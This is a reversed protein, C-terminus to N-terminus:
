IIFLYVFLDFGIPGMSIYKAGSLRDERQWFRFRRKTLKVISVTLYKFSINLYFISKCIIDSSELFVATSLFNQIRKEDPDVNKLFTLQFVGFLQRDNFFRRLSDFTVYNHQKKCFYRFFPAKKTKLNNLQFNFVKDTFYFILLKFLFFNVKFSNYLFIMRRYTLFNKIDVGNELLLKVFTPMDKLLAIEM